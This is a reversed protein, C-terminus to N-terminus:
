GTLVLLCVGGIAKGVGAGWSPRLAPLAIIGGVLAWCSGPSPGVAMGPALGAWWCVVCCGCGQWFLLTCLPSKLVENLEKESTRQILFFFLFGLQSLVLCFPSLCDVQHLNWLLWWLFAQQVSSFLLCVCHSSWSLSFKLFYWVFTVISSFFVGSCIPHPLLILWHAPLSSLPVWGSLAAFSFLIKSLPSIKLVTPVVHLLTANM